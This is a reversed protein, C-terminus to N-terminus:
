INLSCFHFRLCLCLHAINIDISSRTTKAVRFKTKTSRTSKKELKQFTSYKQSSFDAQSPDVPKHKLKPKPIFIYIRCHGAPAVAGGGGGDPVDFVPDGWLKGLLSSLGVDGYLLNNKILPDLESIKSLKWRCKHFWLVWKKNWIAGLTIRTVPPEPSTPFPMRIAESRSGRSSSFNM